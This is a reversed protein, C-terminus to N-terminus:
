LLKLFDDAVDDYTRVASFHSAKEVAERYGETDVLREIAREIDGEDLPDVVLGYPALWPAYGSYKDMIFPKKFRLADLIYNPSIETLSPCIVAYCSKMRDLLADKPLEGEELEIDPFRAKAQAFARHVREGNKMAIKRVIWLFNKRSPADAELPPEIANGIIHSREIGYIRTWLTQQMETSFVMVARRALYRTAGFIVHEKRTFPQHQDYFYPLPVLDRTRELYQEWLFDGGTRVIVPIGLIQGAFVAPVGVSMTDLAIIAHAGRMHGLLRVLYRTHSLGTPWKKLSGYTVVTVDFGKNKLADALGKAYYSPGGPDPPYIGTAIVIKKSPTSM